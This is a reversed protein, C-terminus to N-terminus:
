RIWAEGLWGVLYGAGAAAACLAAEASNRALGVRAARAKVVALAAVAVAASLLSVGLAVSVDWLLYPWLPVLAALAYLLGVLLSARRPAPRARHVLGLEKEVKTKALSRPSTAVRGAAAAADDPAVGEQALLVALEDIEVSRRTEIEALEKAVEDDYLDDAARAALRAETAESLGGAIANALGAVLVATKTATASALGTVVALSLFLADQGVLILERARAVGAVRDREAVVLAELAPGALPHQGAGV